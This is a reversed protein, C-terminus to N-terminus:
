TQLKWIHREGEKYRSYVYSDECQVLIVTVVHLLLISASVVGQAYIGSFLQGRAAELPWTAKGSRWVLLYCASALRRVM